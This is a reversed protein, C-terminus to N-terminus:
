RTAPTKSGSATATEAAPVPKGAVDLQPSIHQEHLQMAAWGPSDFVIEREASMEMLSFRGRYLFTVGVGNQALQPAYTIGSVKQTSGPAVAMAARTQELEASFRVMEPPVLEGIGRLEDHRTAYPGIMRARAYNVHNTSRVGAVLARHDDLDSMGKELDRGHRFSFAESYAQAHESLYSDYSNRDPFEADSFCFRPVLKDKHYIHRVKANGGIEGVHLTGGLLDVPPLGGSLIYPNVSLSAGTRGRLYTGQRRSVVRVAGTTENQRFSTSAIEGTVNGGLGFRAGASPSTTVSGGLLGAIDGRITTTEQHTLGLSLGSAMGKSALLELMRQGADVNEGAAKARQLEVATSRVDLHLQSSENHVAADDHQFRPPTAELDVGDEKIRRFSRIVIGKFETSDRGGGFDGGGSVRGLGPQDEPGWSHGGQEGVGGYTSKRTEEGVFWESGHTAVGNRMVFSTGNEHSFNFRQLLARHEAEEPDHYAYPAANFATGRTSGGHVSTSSYRFNNGFQADKYFDSIMTVAEDIHGTSAQKTVGDIVRTAHDFIQALPPDNPARTLAGEDIGYEDALAHLKDLNIQTRALETETKIRLANLRQPADVEPVDGHAGDLPVPQGACVHRCYRDIDSLEVVNPQQLNFGRGNVVDNLEFQRSERNEPKWVDLAVLQAILPARVGDNPAQQIRQRTQERVEQVLSRVVTSDANGLLTAAEEKLTRLDAGGLGLKTAHLPAAREGDEQGYVDAIKALWEKAKALDGGPLDDRFGNQWAFVHAKQQASLSEDGHMLRTTNALMVSRAFSVPGGEPEGAEVRGAGGGAHAPQQSARYAQMTHRLADVEREDLNDHGLLSLMEPFQNSEAAHGLVDLLLKPEGSLPRRAGPGLHASILQPVEDRIDCEVLRKLVSLQAAGTHGPEIARQFAFSLALSSLKEEGGARRDLRRLVEGAPRRVGQPIDANNWFSSIPTESNRALAPLHSSAVTLGHQKFDASIVASQMRSLDADMKGTQAVLGTAAGSSLSTMLDMGRPLGFMEAVAAVIGKEEGSMSLASQRAAFLSLGDVNRVRSHETFPTRVDVRMGHPTAPMSALVGAHPLSTSKLKGKDLTGAAGAASTSPQPDITLEYAHADHSADTVESPNM